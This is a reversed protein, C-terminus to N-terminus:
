VSSWWPTGQFTINTSLGSLSLLAVTPFALSPTGPLLCLLHLPGTTPLFFKPHKPFLSILSTLAPHPLSVHLVLHAIPFLMLKLWFVM